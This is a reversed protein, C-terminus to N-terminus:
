QLKQRIIESYVFPSHTKMYNLDVSKTIYDQYHRMRVAKMLSSNLKLADITKQCLAQYKIPKQKNVSVEGDTFNIEFSNEEIEFPDLVEHVNKKQNAGLCALRYNSWEYALERVKSKAVFHETSSAGSIIEFYISFYACVGDYAEWLEEQINRWYPPLDKADADPNNSLFEKGPKRVKEDFIEPEPKPTVPIM